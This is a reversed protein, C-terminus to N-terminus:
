EQCPQRGGRGGERAAIRGRRAQPGHHRDRNRRHHASSGGQGELLTASELVWVPSGDRQHLCEESNSVRGREKLAAIFAERSASSSFLGQSAMTLLEEPRSYGFIRAFAENCELIHGDLTTRYVGALSREFLTRYRETSTELEMAQASFRRDAVSTLVALGLVMMTVVAIGATGLWSVSVAHSLNPVVASSSFSVAAMGVYHMTPIAAGMVMASISKFLLSYKREDRLRFALSLAVFSIVIAVVISLMVLPVSFRWMATLRMAAMGTYHMGAIGAGMALSGVVVSARGMTRRSVVQLAVASALMAALLSLLVIPWNYRIHVPLSFALMGIYHMSWIGLGMATAGGILWMARQAGRAATVRGALDLAAYSALIAIVVSLVVLRYDYVGVLMMQHGPM